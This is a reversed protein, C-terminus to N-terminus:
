IQSLEFSIYCSLVQLFLKALDENKLLEPYSLLEEYISVMNEISSDTLPLLTKMKTMIRVGDLKNLKEFVLDVEARSFNDVLESRMEEKSHHYQFLSSTLM